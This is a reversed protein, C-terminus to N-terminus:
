PCPPTPQPAGSKKGPPNLLGPAGALVFPYFHRDGAYLRPGDLRGFTIAFVGAELQRDPVAHFWGPKGAVPTIQLPIDTEVCWLNIPLSADYEVHYIKPFATPGIRTAQLDFSHAPAAAIHALKTLRITAGATEPDFFVIEIPKLDLTIKPPSLIGYLGSQDSGFVLATRFTLGQSPLVFARHDQNIYLAARQPSQMPKRPKEAGVGATASLMGIMMVASGVILLDKKITRM